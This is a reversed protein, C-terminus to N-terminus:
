ILRFVRQANKHTVKDFVEQSIKGKALAEVLFDKLLILVSKGHEVQNVDTGFLLRDQFETLFAYGFEPDRSVANHGSGASLDGYVNPYKRMLSPIRGDPAVPGKPYGAWNQANVDASIHSWFTQSHCLFVLNPHLQVQKEFRPLGLEDILGYTNGDRHAVHFTVPMGCKEAHNFLNVVRPDDFPLNATIEGIGRCGLDKFHVIVESLNKDATNTSQRPDINCFPILRGPFRAAAEIVEYNSQSTDSGEPSVIPLMAGQEIGVRDYMEILQEPLLFAGLRKAKRTRPLVSVHTHCDIFM